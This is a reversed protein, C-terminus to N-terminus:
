GKDKSRTARKSKSPSPSASQSATSTVLQPLDFTPPQNSAVQRLIQPVIQPVLVQQDQTLHLADLIARIATSLMEGQQEAIRVMRTSLGADITMKATKVMHQREERYVVLWAHQETITPTGKFTEEQLHPLGGLTPDSAAPNAIASEPYDDSAVIEPDPADWQGIRGEIFRVMAVSRRIEELLVEEASINISSPDGGFKEVHDAAISRAYLRAANKKGAPTSGGHYTCNGFGPHNTRFGAPKSCHIRGDLKDAKEEISKKSLRAGCTANARLHESPSRIANAQELEEPSMAATRAPTTKLEPPVKTRTRRKGTKPDVFREPVPSANPDKPAPM